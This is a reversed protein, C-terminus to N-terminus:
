QAEGIMRLLAALRAQGIAPSIAAMDPGIRARSVAKGIDAVRAGEETFRSPLRGATAIGMVADNYDKTAADAAERALYSVPGTDGLKEALKERLRIQNVAENKIRELQSVAQTEDVVRQPLAAVTEARRGITELARRLERPEVRDPMLAGATLKIDTLLNGVRTDGAFRGDTGLIFERVNNAVEDIPKKYSRPVRTSGAREGAVGLQREALAALRKRMDPAIGVVSRVADDGFESAARVADDGYSAIARLAKLPIAM